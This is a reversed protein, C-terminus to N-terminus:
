KIGSHGGEPHRQKKKPHQLNLNPNQHLKLELQILYKKLKSHNLKLVMSLVHDVIHYLYFCGM